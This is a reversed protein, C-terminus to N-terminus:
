LVKLIMDMLVALNMYDLIMELNIPDLSYLISIGSFSVQWPLFLQPVSHTQQLFEPVNNDMQLLFLKVLYCYNHQLLLCMMNGSGMIM